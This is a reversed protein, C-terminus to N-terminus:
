LRFHKLVGREIDIEMKLVQIHQYFKKPIRAYDKETTILKANSQNARNILDIIEQESYQYHDGYSIAEIPVIGVDKLAYFFKQPYAIGAFAIYNAEQKQSELYFRPTLYFVKKTKIQEQMINNLKGIVFIIDVRELASSIHERLPGAPFILSNGFGLKGDIVLISLDKHFCNNQLGDDCIIIDVKENCAGEIAAGRDKAVFTKATKSLLLAEDIVEKSSHTKNVQIPGKLSGSYNKCVYAIKYGEKILLRGLAIAIPTKGAGGVTINGICIIKKNFKVKTQLKFKLKSALLYLLSIPYLFISCINIDNWFRPTKM